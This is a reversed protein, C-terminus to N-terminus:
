PVTPRGGKVLVSALLAAKESLQRALIYNKVNLAENAARIFREVEDFQARGDAGLQDRTVADLDRQATNLKQRTQRTMELVSANTRLVPTEAPTPAPQTPPPTNNRTTRAPPDDPPPDALTVTPAEPVEMAVPPPLPSPIILRGPPTPPALAPAEPASRAQLTSCGTVAVASLVVISLRALVTM